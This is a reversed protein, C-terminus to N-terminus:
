TTTSPHFYKFRSEFISRLSLLFCVAFHVIRALQTRRGIRILKNYELNAMEDFGPNPELLIDESQSASPNLQTRAIHGRSTYKINKSWNKIGKKKIKDISCM